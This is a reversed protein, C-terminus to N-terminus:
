LTLLVMQSVRIFAHFNQEWDFLSVIINDFQGQIGKKFLHEAGRLEDIDIDGKKSDELHQLLKKRFEPVKFYARAFFCAIFEKKETNLEDQCSLELAYELAKYLFRQYQLAVKKKHTFHKSNGTEQFAKRNKGHSPFFTDDVERFGMCQLEFEGRALILRLCRIYLPGMNIPVKDCYELLQSALDVFIRQSALLSEPNEYWFATM